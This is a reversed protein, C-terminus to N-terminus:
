IVPEGNEVRHFEFEFALGSRKRTIRLVYGCDPYIDEDHLVVVEPGVANTIGDIVDEILSDYDRYDEEILYIMFCVGDENWSDLCGREVIFFDTDAELSVLIKEIKEACNIKNM